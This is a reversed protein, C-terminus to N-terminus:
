NKENQRLSKSSRRWRNRKYKKTCQSFILCVIGILFCMIVLLKTTLRFIKVDFVVINSEVVDDKM